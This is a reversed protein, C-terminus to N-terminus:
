LSFEEYEQSLIMRILTAVGDDDNSPLLVDAAAKCAASANVVAAKLGACAIMDADNDANGCAATQGLPIDLLRCLRHLANSKTADQHMFEVFHASSSTIYTEHLENELMARVKERLARDPCVYEVSDLRRRNEFIYQRMDDLGGRSHQVYGVYAPTCGYRLPDRLYRNDTYTAGDLFAEWILDYPATLELLKVVESEKMPIEHLRKGTKDHIAAGNSSIVYNVGHLGLVSAPMSGYPRGSAAVIEVGNDAAREMAAAVAPSLTNDSRLATGDLDLAILKIPM